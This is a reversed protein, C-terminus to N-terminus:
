RETKAVLEAAAAAKGDAAAAIYADMTGASLLRWVRVERAQGIRHARDEAQLNAADDFDVDVFIVADAATLTLGQGGAKISLLCALVSSDAAFRDVIAQRDAAATSGDIRLWRHQLLDLVTECLDLVAHYCSFILARHGGHRLAALLSTLRQVKGSDFFAAAPLALARLAPSSGPAAGGLFGTSTGHTRSAAHLGTM